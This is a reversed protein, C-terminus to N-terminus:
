SFYPQPSTLNFLLLTSSFYPQPPGPNLLLLLSSSYFSHFYLYYTDLTYSSHIFINFSSIISIFLHYIYHCSSYHISLFFYNVLSWTFFSGQTAQTHQIINVSLLKETTQRTDGFVSQSGCILVPHTRFRSINM